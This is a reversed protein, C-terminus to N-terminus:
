FRGSVGGAGWGIWPTVHVRAAEPQPKPPAVEEPRSSTLLSVVGLLAGAGALAFSVTSITAMTRAADISGQADPLCANGNCSQKAKSTDSMSVLGTITGAIAGVGAVAFGTIALARPTSSRQAQERKVTVEQAAKWEALAQPPVDLTVQKKEREAIDLDQKQEVGGLKAVIVHHGPNVMQKLGLTQPPIAVGDITVKAAGEPAGTVVVKISPIRAELDQTMLEAQTRAEHFIQPENPWWPMRVVRLASDRAEVLKGLESQARAVAIGTTPVHMISDAGQFAKLAADWDGHDRADRGEAMLQRATEKEAATPENASAASAFVLAVSAVFAALVFRFVM